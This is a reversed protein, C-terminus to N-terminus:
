SIGSYSYRHGVQLWLNSLSCGMLEWPASQGLQSCGALRAIETKARTPLPPVSAVSKPGNGGRLPPQQPPLQPQPWQVKRDGDYPLVGVFSAKGPM